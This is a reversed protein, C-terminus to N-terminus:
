NGAKAKAAYGANRQAQIHPVGAGPPSERLPISVEEKERLSRGQAAAVALTVARQILRSPVFEAIGGFEGGAALRPLAEDSTYGSQIFPRKEIIEGNTNNSATTSVFDFTFVMSPKPDALLRKKLIEVGAEIKKPILLEDVATIKAAKLAERVAAVREDLFRDGAPPVLLIAGGEPNLKANRANRISLEVMKRASEAFSPPGVVIM